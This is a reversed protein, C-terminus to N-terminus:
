PLDLLRYLLNGAVARRYEASARLDDIPCVARRAAQRARAIRDPDPPPGTLISEVERARVVTPGVSGYACRVETWDGGATIRAVFALSAVAIANARRQGVKEFYQKTEGGPKALLVSGVVEGPRLASRGPAVLFEEIPLTRQGRSSLLVVTAGLVTLPPLTDGAPSATCLNGGLTAMNRLAPGGMSELGRCLVPFDRRLAPTAALDAVPTAAGLRLTDGAEEVGRLEDLRELGILTAPLTAASRLRVFLDTGGAFVLGQPDEAFAEWLEALTRPLVVRTM